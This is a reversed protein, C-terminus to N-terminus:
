RVSDVQCAEILCLVRATSGQLGRLVLDVNRKAVRLYFIGPYDSFMWIRGDYWPEAEPGLMRATALVMEDAGGLTEPIEFPDSM